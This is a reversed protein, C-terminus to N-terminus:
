RIVKTMKAVNSSKIEISRPLDRHFGYLKFTMVQLLTCITHNMCRNGLFNESQPCKWANRTCM